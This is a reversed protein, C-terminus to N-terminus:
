LLFRPKFNGGEERWMPDNKLDLICRILIVDQGASRQYKKGHNRRQTSFADMDLLHNNLIFFLLYEYQLDLHYCNYTLYFIKFWLLLTWIMVFFKFIIDLICFMFFFTEFVDYLLVVYLICLLIQLLTTCKTLSGIPRVNRVGLWGWISDLCKYEWRSWNNRRWQYKKEILLVDLVEDEVLDISMERRIYNHLLACTNVIRAQIKVPYFLKERIIM